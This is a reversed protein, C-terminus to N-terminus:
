PRPQTRKRCPSSIGIPIPLKPPQEPWEVANTIKVTAMAAANAPFPIMWDGIVDRLLTSLEAHWAFAFLFGSFESRLRHPRDVAFPTIPTCLAPSTQYRRSGQENEHQQIVGWIDYDTSNSNIEPSNRISCLLQSNQVAATPTHQVCSEGTCQRASPCLQWWRKLLM